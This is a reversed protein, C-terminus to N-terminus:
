KRVKKKKRFLDVYKEWLAKIPHVKSKNLNWFTMAVLFGIFLRAIWSLWAPTTCDTQHSTSTQEPVAAAVTEQTTSNNTQLTSFPWANSVYLVLTIIVVVLLVSNNNSM